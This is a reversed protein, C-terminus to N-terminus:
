SIRHFPLPWLLGPLRGLRSSCSNDGFCRPSVPDPPQEKEAGYNQILKM